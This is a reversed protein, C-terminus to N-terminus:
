APRGAVVESHLVGPELELLFSSDEPYYVATEPNEGAFRRIADMSEWLSLVYIHTVEGDEGHLIATGRHGPTTQQGVLGTCRVYDVYKEADETRIRGHWLRAIM